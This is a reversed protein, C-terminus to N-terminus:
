SKKWNQTIVNTSPIGRSAARFCLQTNQAHTRELM